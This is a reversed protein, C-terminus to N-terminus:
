PKKGEQVLQEMILGVAEYDCHVGDYFNTNDFHYYEPDYSGSCRVGPLEKGLKRFYTDAQFVVQYRPTRKFYDYTIPHYPTFLLVVDAGESAMYSVLKQFIVKRKKSLVKFDEFGKVDKVAIESEANRLVMEPSRGRYGIPYMYSGDCRKTAGDNFQQETSVIDKTDGRVFRQISEQFYSLSILEWYVSSSWENVPEYVYEKAGIMELCSLYEPELEKWLDSDYHDNLLWPDVSIIVREPKVEAQRFLYYAALIEELSGGSLSANYLSSDGGMGQDIMLSRSAGVVITKPKVPLSSIMKRLYNREDFNTVETAQKGSLTISAIKGIYEESRFLNAPDQKWNVFVVFLMIPLLWFLKMLFKKM